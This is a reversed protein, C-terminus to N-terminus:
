KLVKDIESKLTDLIVERSKGEVQRMVKDMWGVHTAVKQGTFNLGHNEYGYNQFWLSKTDEWNKAGIGCAGWASGNNNSKIYQIQLKKRSQGTDIPANKKQQELAVNLGKKIATKGVKQGVQGLRDITATLENIGDVKISM